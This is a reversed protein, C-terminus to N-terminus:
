HFHLCFYSLLILQLLDRTSPPQLCRHCHDLSGSRGTFHHSHTMCRRGMKKGGARTLRDKVREYRAANRGFSRMKRAKQVATRKELSKMKNQEEENSGDDM